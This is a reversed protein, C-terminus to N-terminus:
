NVFFQMRTDVVSLSANSLPWICVFGFDILRIIQNQFDDFLTFMSFFDEQEFIMRTEPLLFFKFPDNSYKPRHGTKGLSLFFDGLIYRIRRSTGSWLNKREKFNRSPKALQWQVYM